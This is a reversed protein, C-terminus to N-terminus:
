KAAFQMCNNYTRKNKISVMAESGNVWLAIDNNSYKKGTASLERTLLSSTHTQADSFMVQDKNLKMRQDDAVFENHFVKFSGEDCHYEDVRPVNNAQKPSPVGPTPSLVSDRCFPKQYERCMKKTCAAMGKGPAKRCNNCGDFFSTCDAPILTKWSNADYTPGQISTAMPQPAETSTNAVEATMPQDSPSEAGEEKACGLISLVFVCVILVRSLSNM